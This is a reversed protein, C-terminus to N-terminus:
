HNAILTVVKRWICCELFELFLFYFFRGSFERLNGKSGEYGLMELYLVFEWGFFVAFFFSLFSRFDGNKGLVISKLIMPKSEGSNWVRWWM